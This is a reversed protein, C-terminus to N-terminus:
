KEEAELNHNNPAPNIYYTFKVFGFGPRKYDEGYEFERIKGFCRSETEVRSGNLIDTCFVLYCGAALTVDLLVKEPTRKLEFAVPSVYGTQPAEYLSWNTSFADQKCHIFGGGRPVSLTLSNTLYGFTGNYESRYLFSLCPQKGLGYPPLWDGAFCDFDVTKNYPLKADVRKSIMRVPSRKEKLIVEVTPNWPQWRGDKVDLDPRVFSYQQTTRYYGKKDVYLNCFSNSLGEASIKGGRDTMGRVQTNKKGGAAYYVEVNAGSVPTGKSDVVRVTIRGKAGDRHALEIESSPKGNRSSLDLRQIVSANRLDETEIIQKIDQRADDSTGQRIFQVASGRFWLTFALFCGFAVLVVLILWKKDVRRM